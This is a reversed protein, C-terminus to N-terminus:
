RLLSLEALFSSESLMGVKRWVEKDNRLVVFAPISRIHYESAVAQAKDVDIQRIILWDSQKQKISEVIPMMMKCPQCWDAYFQLLTFEQIENEANSM